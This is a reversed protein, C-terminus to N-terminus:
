GLQVIDLTSYFSNALSCFILSIKLLEIFSLYYIYFLGASKKVAYILVM